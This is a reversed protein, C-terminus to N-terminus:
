SAPKELEALKKKAEENDPNKELAKHFNDIAQQKQGARAYAEALHGYADSSDPYQSVNLSLIAIAESPHNDSSLQDGWSELANEDLKFGADEKKMAAYIEGAHDFGKRGLEARFAELTPPLGKAARFDVSLLHQPVGNEAPTKKLWAL